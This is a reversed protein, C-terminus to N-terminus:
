GVRLPDVGDVGAAVEGADRGALERVARYAMDVAADVYARPASDSNAIAVNGFRERAVHNPFPGHPWFIEFPVCYQYAYAHAWRNITIAEIDEAADFGGPGLVEQLQKRLEREMGAFGTALLERRGDASQDTPHKPKWPDDSPVAAASGLHVLIPKHPDQPFKYKGISVPFDLSMSDWYGSVYRAGSIGLKTFATWNKIQVTAYSLAMRKANKLANAQAAGLEDTLYPILNNNLALIVHKARVTLLKGDNMYSVEVAFPKGHTTGKKHRNPPYLNQVKVVPSNLRVRFSGPKDLEAYQIRNTDITEMGRGPLARPNLDRILSYVVGANGEPFHYIYPDESYWFKPVDARFRPDPELSEELEGWGLGLGDFGVFEVSADLAGVGSAGYGYDGNPTTEFFKVTDPHAKVWKLLYQEYTIQALEDKKEAVTLGPMYDVEGAYMEAIQAKAENAMPAGALVDDWARGGGTYTVFDRGWTEKDFFLARRTLGHEANFSTDFYREFKQYDIGIDELLRSAPRAFSSPSDLSQSGGYGILTRASTEFENRRAHGGVDDLGELVLITSRGFQERYFKAASLGSIGSGVVVLDYYEGTSKPPPATKWFQGSALSHPITQVGDFYGRGGTLAPPYTAPPHPHKGHGSPRGQFATSADAAGTGAAVLGVSVAVGDLFSRRTINRNMGLREDSYEVM